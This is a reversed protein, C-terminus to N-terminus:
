FFQKLDVESCTTIGETRNGDIFDIITQPSKVEFDSPPADNMTNGCSQCKYLKYSCLPCFKLAFKMGKQCGVCEHTPHKEFKIESCNACLLMKLQM